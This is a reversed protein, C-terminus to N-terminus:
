IVTSLTVNSGFLRTLRLSPRLLALLVSTGLINLMCFACLTRGFGAFVASVTLLMVFLGFLLLGAKVFTDLLDKIGFNGLDLM